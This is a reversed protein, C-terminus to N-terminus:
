PLVEPQNLRSWESLLTTKGFGSPAPILILNYSLGEHLRDMLRPRRVYGPRAPPINLRTTLLSTEVEVAQNPVM